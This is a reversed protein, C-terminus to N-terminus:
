TSLFYSVTIMGTNPMGTGKWMAVILFIDEETSPLPMLWICYFSAISTHKTVQFKEVIGPDQAHLVNESVFTTKLPLLKKGCAVSLLGFLGKFWDFLKKLSINELLYQKLIFM